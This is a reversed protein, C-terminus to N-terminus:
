PTECGVGDHNGDFSHPDPPLVPFYREAIDACDLDRAGPPICLTPYPPDCGGGGPTSGPSAADPAGSAATDCGAGWLGRGADRAEAVAAGVDDAHAVNPPITLQHAFGDRAMAVNVHLGDDLAVDGALYPHAFDLRSGATSRVSNPNRLPRGVM